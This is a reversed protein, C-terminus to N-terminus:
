IDPKCNYRRQVYLDTKKTNLGRIEWESKKKGAKRSVGIHKRPAFIDILGRTVTKMTYM